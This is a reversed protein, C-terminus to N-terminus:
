GTIVDIVMRVTDLSVVSVVSVVSDSAAVSYGIRTVAIKGLAIYVTKSLGCLVCAKPSRFKVQGPNYGSILSPTDYSLGGSWQPLYCYPSRSIRYIHRLQPHIYLSSFPSNAQSM